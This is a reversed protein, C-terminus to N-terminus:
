AAFGVVPAPYSLASNSGSSVKAQKVVVAACEAGFVIPCGFFADLRESAACGPHVFFVRIPRLAIGTQRM